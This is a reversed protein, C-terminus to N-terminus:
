RRVRQMWNGWWLGLRASVFAIGLAIALGKFFLRPSWVGAADKDLNWYQYRWKGLRLTYDWQDAGFFWNRAHPSMLFESWWWHVLM